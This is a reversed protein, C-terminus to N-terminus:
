VLKRLKEMLGLWGTITQAQKEFTVDYILEHAGIRACAQADERIQDVREPSFEVIPGWHSILSTSTPVFSWPSPPLIGGPM